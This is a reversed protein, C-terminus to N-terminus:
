WPTWRAAPRRSGRRRLRCWFWFGCCRHCWCCYGCAEDSFPLLQGPTYQASPVPSMLGSQSLGQHFDFTGHENGNLFHRDAFVNLGASASQGRSEPLGTTRDGSFPLGFDSFPGKRAAAEAVLRRNEADAAVAQAQALESSMLEFRQNAVETLSAWEHAFKVREEALAQEQLDKERQLRRGEHILTDKDKAVRAESAQQQRIEAIAAERLGDEFERSSRATDAMMAAMQEKFQDQLMRRDAEIRAYGDALRANECRLAEVASELAGDSGRLPLLTAETPALVRQRPEVINVPFIAPASAAKYRALEAELAQAKETSERLLRLM